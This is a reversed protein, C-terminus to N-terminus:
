RCAQGATGKQPSTQPSPISSDGEASGRRRPYSVAILSSFSPSLKPPVRYPQHTRLDEQKWLPLAEQNEGPNQWRPAAQQPASAHERSLVSSWLRRCTMLLSPPHPSPLKPFPTSNHHSNNTSTFYPSQLDKGSSGPSM